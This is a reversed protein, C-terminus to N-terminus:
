LRAVEEAAEPQRCALFTLFPANRHPRGLLREHEAAQLSASRFAMCRQRETACTDPLLFWLHTTTMLFHLQRRYLQDQDGRASLLIRFDREEDGYILARQRQRQEWKTGSTYLLSRLLVMAPEMIWKAVILDALALGQPRLLWAAAMDRTKTNEAAWEDDGEKVPLLAPSARPGQDSAMTAPQQPGEGDNSDRAAPGCELPLQMQARELSQSIQDAAPASRGADINAPIRHGVDHLFQRFSRSM